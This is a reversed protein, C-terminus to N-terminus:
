NYGRAFEAEEEAAEKDEDVAGQCALFLSRTCLHPRDVLYQPNADAVQEPTSGKYKGNRLPTQDINKTKSM